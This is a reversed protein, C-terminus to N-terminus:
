KGAGELAAGEVRSITKPKTSQVPHGGGMLSAKAACAAGIAENLTPAEM